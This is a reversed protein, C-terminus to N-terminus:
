ILKGKKMRARLETYVVKKFAKPRYWPPRWAQARQSTLCGAADLVAAAGTSFTLSLADTSHTQQGRQVRRTQLQAHVGFKNNVESFEKVIM